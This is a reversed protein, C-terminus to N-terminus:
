CNALEEFGLSTTPEPSVYDRLYVWDSKMDAWYANTYPDGSFFWFPNGTNYISSWAVPTTTTLATGGANSVRIYWSTGNSVLEYIYYTGLTHTGWNTQVSSWTAGDWYIEDETTDTYFIRSQGDKRPFAQVRRRANEITNVAVTPQAASEVFSIAKVEPNCCTVNGASVLTFKHRLTFQRSAPISDTAVIIGADADASGLDFVAEGGTETISATGSTSTALKSSLTGSSFDDGMKFINAWDAPPTGANTNGYYLYYSNVSSSAGIDSVLPFWITTTASNWSSLPDLTRSLEVGNQRVVRIDDGNALSKGAAVLTAHNLTLSASYGSSVGSTSTTVTILKRATWDCNFWYQQLVVTKALDASLLVTGGGASTNFIMVVRAPMRPLTANMVKGASFTGTISKTFNWTEDVGDVLIKFQGIQLPDGGEHSIYVTKSSNSILGSFSPVSTPLSGSVLVLVVIGMAIVAIAVLIIAGVV